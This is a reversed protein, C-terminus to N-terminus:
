FNKSYSILSHHTDLHWLSNPSPVSYVRRPIVQAYRRVTETPDVNALIRAVRDRAVIIPPDLSKLMSNIEWIGSNPYILHLKEFREKLENDNINLFRKHFTKIENRKMFNHVTNPHIKKGLLGKEAIEKVPCGIKLM